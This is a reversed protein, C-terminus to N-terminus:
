STLGGIFWSDNIVQIIRSSYAPQKTGAAVVTGSYTITTDTLNVIKCQWGNGFGTANWAPLTATLGENYTIPIDKGQMDSTVLFSAVLETFVTATTGLKDGLQEVVDVFGEQVNPAAPSLGTIPDLYTNEAVAGLDEPTLQINGSVDPSISNVTSVAGGGSATGLAITSVAVELNHTGSALPNSSLEVVVVPANANVM